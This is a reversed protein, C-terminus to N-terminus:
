SNEYIEVYASILQAKNILRNIPIVFIISNESDEFIRYKSPDLKRSFAAKYVKFRKTGDNSPQENISEAGLVSFTNFGTKTEIDHM